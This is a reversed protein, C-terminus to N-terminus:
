HHLFALIHKEGTAAAQKAANNPNSVEAGVGDDGDVVESLFYDDGVHNFILEDKKQTDNLESQETEFLAAQKGDATRIELLSDNQDVPRITYDGAPFEAGGAHFQFPITADVAYPLQAQAKLSGGVLIAGVLVFLYLMTKKM